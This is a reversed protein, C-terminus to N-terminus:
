VGASRLAGETLHRDQRAVKERYHWVLLTSVRHENSSHISAEWRRAPWSFIPTRRSWPYSEIQKSPARDLNVLRSIGRILSRWYLFIHGFHQVLELNRKTTVAPEVTEAQRLFRTARHWQDPHTSKRIRIVQYKCCLYLITSLHKKHLGPCDQQRHEVHFIQSSTRTSSQSEGDFVWRSATRFLRNSTPLGSSSHLSYIRWLAISCCQVKPHVIAGFGKSVLPDLLSRCKSTKLNSWGM